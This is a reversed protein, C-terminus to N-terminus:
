RKLGCAGILHDAKRRGGGDVLDFQEGLSSEALRRRRRVSRCVALEKGATLLWRGPATYDDEARDIAARRRAMM